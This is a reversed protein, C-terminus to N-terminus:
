SPRGSASATYYISFCVSMPALFGLDETGIQTWGCIQTLEKPECKEDKPHSSTLEQSANQSM